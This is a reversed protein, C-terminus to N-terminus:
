KIEEIKVKVIRYGKLDVRRKRFYYEAEEETDFIRSIWFDNNQGKYKLM